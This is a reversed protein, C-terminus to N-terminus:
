ERRDAERQGKEKKERKKGGGGYISWFTHTL